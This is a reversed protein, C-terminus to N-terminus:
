EFGGTTPNFTLEAKNLLSPSINWGRGGDFPRVIVKTRNIKELVCDIREGKHEFWVKDGVEFANKAKRNLTARHHKLVDYVESIGDSDLQLLKVILTDDLM